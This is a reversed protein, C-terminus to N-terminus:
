MGKMNAISTAAFRDVDSPKDHEAVLIANPVAARIQPILGAWDVVGTGVDAWGDEDLCEGEAAIDKVHVAVIRDAYKTVYPAPDLGARAVWGLDAEWQLSPATELLIDMPFKGDPLAEFEFEHNHWSFTRGTAEVKAGIEALEEALAAWGASDAPRADPLLYPVVVHKIGLAEAREMMADFHERMDDIAFHGSPMTIDNAAMAAAFSAPDGYVGGYGEVQTYGLESLRSLFSEQSAVDRSSYLQFSFSM